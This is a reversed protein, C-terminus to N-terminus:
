SIRIALVTVDDEFEPSDAHERARALLEQCLAEPKLHLARTKLFEAVRKLSFLEHDRNETEVLGDTILLFLDGPEASCLATEYCADHVLGLALGRPKVQVVKGQSAQYHLLPLHGANLVEAQRQEADLRIACFSVFMRRDANRFVVRNMQRGLDALPAHEQASSEFAGKTVAMLLGSGLDHGAVDGTAFVRLGRSNIVHGFFDGGMEEPNTCVAHAELGSEQIHLPRLIRDHIAKALAMRAQTDAHKIFAQRFLQGYKGRFSYFFILAILALGVNISLSDPDPDEKRWLESDEMSSPTVGAEQPPLAHSEKRALQVGAYLSAVFLAVGVLLTWLTTQHRKLPMAHAAFMAFDALVVLVSLQIALTMMAGHRVYLPWLALHIVALTGMNFLASLFFVAWKMGRPLQPLFRYEEYGFLLIRQTWESFRNDLLRKWM